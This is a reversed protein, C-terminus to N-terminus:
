RGRRWEAVDFFLRRGRWVAIAGLITGFLFPVLLDGGVVFHPLEQRGDIDIIADQRPFAPDTMVVLSKLALAFAPVGVIVFWALTRWPFTRLRHVV